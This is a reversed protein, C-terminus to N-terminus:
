SSSGMRNIGPRCSVLTKIVRIKRAPQPACLVCFCDDDECGGDDLPEDLLEEGLEGDGLLEEAGLLPEGPPCDEGLAPEGPALEGGAPVTPPLEGLAEGAPLSERAEDDGPLELGPLRPWCPPSELGDVASAGVAPM